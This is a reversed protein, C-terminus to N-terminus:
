AAAKEDKFRQSQQKEERRAMRIQPPHPPAQTKKAPWNRATKPRRRRYSDKVARALACLDKAAQRSGRGSMVRRVVRLAEAVSWQMPSVGRRLMRQIALLGLMWWGALAWDLEVQAKDPSTSRLKHKAMTQKFSRSFVEIGWRRRYMQGAQRDSLASPDLVNSLLYVAKRGDGLVVLRLVLPEQKRQAQPWLYVIGDYERLAFGLKTLLRVNAGARILFSRGGGMLERLLEYGTFGADALLLAAPPLTAIMERLQNRETEKGGGRRWDWILGTGVHLVTTVFQQPTTKDKGACGFAEENAATRPCNIRAGDVGMVIWGELTWYRGAVERVAQRLARAVLPLLRRSQKQLAKIFGAYTHGARRRTPYMGTVVHWCAEFADKLSTASQWALLVGMVVLLRDTWRLRQDQPQLPLGRQPLFKGIAQLLERHYCRQPSSHGIRQRKM